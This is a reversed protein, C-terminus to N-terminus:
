DTKRNRLWSGIFAGGSSAALIIGLYSWPVGVYIAAGAIGFAILMVGTGITVQNSVQNM